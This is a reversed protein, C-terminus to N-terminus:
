STAINGNKNNDDDKFLSCLICLCVLIFGFHMKDVILEASAFGILALISTAIFALKFLDSLLSKIIDKM